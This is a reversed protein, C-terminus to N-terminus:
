NGHDSGRAVAPVEVKAFTFSLNNHGKPSGVVKGDGSGDDDDPGGADGPDVRVAPAHGVQGRREVRLPCPTGVVAFDAAQDLVCPL